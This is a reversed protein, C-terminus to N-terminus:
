RLDGETLPKVPEVARDDARRLSLRIDTAYTDMYALRQADEPQVKLTAIVVDRLKYEPTDDQTPATSRTFFGNRQGSSNEDEASSSQAVPTQPGGLVALVETDSLLTETRKEKVEQGQEDLYSTEYSVVVDVRSGTQVRDALVAVPNVGISVARWGGELGNTPAIDTQRVIAGKELPVVAVRQNAIDDISQVYSPHAWMRPIEKIELVDATILTRPAIAEKLVVVQQKDGIQRELAAIQSTFMLGTIGALVVALLGFVFGRRKQQRM